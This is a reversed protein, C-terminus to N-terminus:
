PCRHTADAGPNHGPSGGRATVHADTVRWDIVRWDTVRVDARPVGTVHM